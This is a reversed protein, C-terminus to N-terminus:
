RRNEVDYAMGFWSDGALPVLILEVTRGGAITLRWQGHPQRLAPDAAYRGIHHHM